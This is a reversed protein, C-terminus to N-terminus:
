SCESVVTRLSWAQVAVKEPVDVAIAPTLIVAAVVCSSGPVTRTLYATVGAEGPVLSDFQLSAYSEGLGYVLVSHSTFDVSPLPPQPLRNAYIAQWITRWSLSDGVVVHTATSLGSIGENALIAAQDPVWVPSQNGLQAAKSPAATTESCAATAAAALLALAILKRNV